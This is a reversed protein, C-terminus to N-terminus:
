ELIHSAVPALSSVCGKESSGVWAAQCGFSVMQGTVPSFVSTLSSRPYVTRPTSFWSHLELWYRPALEAERLRPDLMGLQRHSM